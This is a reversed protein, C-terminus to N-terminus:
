KEQEYIHVENPKFKDHLIGNKLEISRSEFKVNFRAERIIKSTDIDPAQEKDTINVAIIYYKGDYKLVAIDLSQSKEIIGGAKEGFMYQQSMEKTQSNLTKMYEWVEETLRMVGPATRSKKCTYMFYGLGKAGHNLALFTMAKVEDPRPCRPWGEAPSGFMQLVIWPSKNKLGKQANIILDVYASVQIIKTKGIPYPDLSLIDCNERNAGAGNILNMYVPRYPDVERIADYAKKNTGLWGDTEDFSFWGVIAPNNRYKLETLGMEILQENSAEAFRAHNDGLMGFCYLKNRELNELFDSFGSFDSQETLQMEAKSSPSYKKFHRLTEDKMYAWNPMIIDFGKDAIDKFEDKGIKGDWGADLYLVLPILQKGNLSALGNESISLRNRPIGAEPIKEFRSRANAVTKGNSDSIAAEIQYSGNKLGKISLPIESALLVKTNEKEIVSKSDNNKVTLTLKSNKLSSIDKSLRLTLLIEEQKDYFLRDTKLLITKAAPAVDKCHLYKKFDTNIGSIVGFKAPNHFGILTPSWCSFEKKATNVRCFNIGWISFDRRNDNRPFSLDSYPIALEVQWRNDYIQAASKINHKLQGTGLEFAAKGEPSAGVHGYSYGSCGPDLFIEICDGDFVKQGAKVKQTNQCYCIMGIYIYEDDYLVYAESDEDARKEGSFLMFGSVKDAKQWDKDDLKGDIVAQTERKVARISYESQLKAAIDTDVGNLTAATCCLISVVFLEISKSISMDAKYKLKVM